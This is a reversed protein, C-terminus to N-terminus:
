LIGRIKSQESFVRFIDIISELEEKPVETNARYYINKFDTEKEEGLMEEISLGIMHSILHYHKPKLIVGSIIQEYLEKQESNLKNKEKTKVLNILQYNSYKPLVSVVGSM